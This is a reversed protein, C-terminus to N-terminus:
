VVDSAAPAGLELARHVYPLHDPITMVGIHEGASTVYQLAIGQQPVSRGDGATRHRVGQLRMGAPLGPAGGSGRPEWEWSWDAALRLRGKVWPGGERAAYCVLELSRGGVFFAAVRAARRRVLFGGLCSGALFGVILLIIVPM